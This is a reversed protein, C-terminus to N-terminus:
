EWYLKLRQFCFDSCPVSKSFGKEGLTVVLTCQGVCERCDPGSGESEDRCEEQDSITAAYGGWQEELEGVHEQRMIHTSGTGFVLCQGVAMEIVLKRVDQLCKSLCWRRLSVKGSRGVRCERDGNGVKNEGQCKNNYKYVMYNIEKM